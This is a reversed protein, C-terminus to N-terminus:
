SNPCRKGGKAKYLDLYSKAVQESARFSRVPWYGFADHVRIKAHILAEVPQGVQPYTGADKRCEPSVALLNNDKKPGAIFSGGGGNVNIYFAHSSATSARARSEFADVTGSINGTNAQHLILRAGFMVPLTSLEPYRGDDCIHMTMPVGHVDFDHLRCGHRFNSESCHAEPCTEVIQGDPDYLRSVNYRVLQGSDSKGWVPLGAVLYPANPLKKIFEKLKKEAQAIPKPDQTVKKDSFLGSLSAAPTVLLQIQKDAAETLGRCISEINADINDKNPMQWGGLDLYEPIPSAVGKQLVRRALLDTNQVTIKVGMEPLLNLDKLSMIKKGDLYININAKKVLTGSAQTKEIRLRHVGYKALQFPFKAIPQSERWDSTFFSMQSSGFDLKALAHEGGGAFGFEFTGSPKIWVDAPSFFLEIADGNRTHVGSGTMSVKRDRPAMFLLGEDVKEFDPELKEPWDWGDKNHSFDMDYLIIENNAGKATAGFGNFATSAALSATTLGVTKLFDRRTYNLASM